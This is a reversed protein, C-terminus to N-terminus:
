PTRVASDGRTKPILTAFPTPRVPQTARFRNGRQKTITEAKPGMVYSMSARDRYHAGARVLAAIVGQLAVALEEDSAIAPADLGRGLLPVAISAGPVVTMSMTRLTEALSAQAHTARPSANLLGVPKHLVDPFSVLWDLANKLVGPVGHAYEPSCILLADAWDIYRRLTQVNRPPTVGEGDLDPNFYPLQDLGTFLPIQVHTPALSAVARLLETNSSRERLSGSIGLVRVGVTSEPSAHDDAERGALRRVRGLITM